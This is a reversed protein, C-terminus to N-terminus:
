KLKMITIKFHNLTNKSYQIYKSYDNKNIGYMWIIHTNLLKIKITIDHYM